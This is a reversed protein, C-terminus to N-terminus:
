VSDPSNDPSFIVAYCRRIEDQWHQPIYHWDKLDVLYPLRSESFADRLDWLTISDLAGEGVIV